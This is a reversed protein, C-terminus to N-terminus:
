QSLGLKECLNRLTIEELHIQSDILEHRERPLKNLEKSLTTYQTM